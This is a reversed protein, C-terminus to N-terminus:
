VITHIRAIAITIVENFKSQFGLAEEGSGHGQRKLESEFHQQGRLIRREGREAASTVSRLM